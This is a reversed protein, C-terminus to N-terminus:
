RLRATFEVRATGRRRVVGGERWAFALRYSGAPIGVDRVDFSGTDGRRAATFAFTVVRGARAVRVRGSSARGRAPLRAYGIGSVASRQTWRRPLTLALGGRAVSRGLRVSFTITEHAAAAVRSDSVRLVGAGFGYRTPPAGAATAQAAVAAAAVAIACAIARRSRV